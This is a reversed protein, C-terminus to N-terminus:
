DQKFSIQFEQEYFTADVELDALEAIKKVISLGLGTSHISEKGKKFREFLQNEDMKSQSKNKFSMSKKDLYISLETNSMGHKLVNSFLNICLTNALLPDCSAIFDGKEELVVRIAQDELMSQFEEIKAKILENFNVASFSNFQQNDLKTLLLLRENLKSLRQVSQYCAYIKSYVEPNLEEQLIEELGVSIISLPTQIEHSANETFEKLAKYDSQLKKTLSVLSTGLDQFEEVRTEELIMPADQQFSFSRLTELNKYFPQWLKLSFRNNLVMLLGLVLLLIILMTVGIALAFDKNEIISHRVKIQYWYGNINKISVLERFPEEEKEIPDYLSVNRIQESADYDGELKEVEIVPAMSIFNPNSKIQETIRWEDVRLKEDVEDSLFYNLSAFLLVGAVPLVILIVFAFNRNTQQILKM